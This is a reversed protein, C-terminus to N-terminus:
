PPQSPAVNLNSRLKCIRSSSLPKTFSDASQEHAPVHQVTLAKSTVKERVFHIGPEIHKTRAHLVPNYALSVVSLNDCFLQPTSFPVHLETLLSQIWLAEATTNAMSCNLQWM